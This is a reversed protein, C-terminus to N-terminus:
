APDSAHRLSRWAARAEPLALAAAGFSCGAAILCWVCFAGHKTWQDRTLKAAQAADAGTKVALALPLWPRRAFRDAGGMSTLVATAAYTALGLPADPTSFWGYAQPAADVKDSDFYPLPPDPLHDIVGLQYLAIVGMAGAAGLACGLIGRRQPLFGGEETRLQRSLEAPSVADIARTLPSLPM